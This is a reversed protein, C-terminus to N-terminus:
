ESEGINEPETGCVSQEAAFDVGTQAAGVQRARLRMVGLALLQAVEDLRTANTAPLDADDPAVLRVPAEGM